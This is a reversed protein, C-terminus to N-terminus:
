GLGHYNVVRKEIDSYSKRQYALIPFIGYVKKTRQMDLFYDEGNKVPSTLLTLLTKYITYNIAVCHLGLTNDLKSIHDSIRRCGHKGRKTVEGIYVMDWDDPLESIYGQFLEIFNEAFVIDDEMILISSYDKDIADNLINIWTYLLGWQGSNMICPNRKLKSGQVASIREVNLINYKKFELLTEAWRDPRNDLNICYLHSFYNSLM